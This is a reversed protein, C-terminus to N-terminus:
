GKGRKRLSLSIGGRKHFPLNPPTVYSLIMQLVGNLNTFVENDWFRCVKIGLKNLYKSREKDYLLANAENHQGGDLEIALRRQPCYFDVIYNGISFQRLFRYGFVQKNRLHQWLKKEADTQNKRLRTRKQKLRILNYLETM